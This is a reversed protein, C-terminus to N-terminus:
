NFLLAPSIETRPNGSQSMYVRLDGSGGGQFYRIRIKHLGKLLNIGSTLEFVAHKQDNDVVLQDNIWVQSGDDSYTTFTSVGDELINIYGEFVLGYTRAKTRFKTLNLESTVGKESAKLTDIQATLEFDGPVFYYKLGAQQGAATAPALPLLNNLITTTVASRKGSHTIVITKLIRKEDQPVIIQIPKDYM